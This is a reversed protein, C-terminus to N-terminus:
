RKVWGERYAFSGLAMGVGFEMLSGAVRQASEGSALKSVEYGSFILSSVLPYWDPFFSTAIGFAVHWFSGSDTPTNIFVDVTADYSGPMQGANAMAMGKQKYMGLIHLLGNETAIRVIQPDEALAMVLQQPTGKWALRYVLKWIPLLVWVTFKFSIWLCLKILRILM